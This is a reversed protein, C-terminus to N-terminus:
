ATLAQGSSRVRRTRSLSLSLASTPRPYTVRLGFYDFHRCLRIKPLNTTGLKRVEGLKRFRRKVHLVENISGCRTPKLRFPIAHRVRRWLCQRSRMAIRVRSLDTFWKDVSAPTTRFRGRDVVEGDQNLTYCHTWVDGFDIGITMEFKSNSRPVEAILHQTLKKM